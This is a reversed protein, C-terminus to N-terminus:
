RQRKDYMEALKHAFLLNVGVIGFGIITWLVIESPQFINNEIIKYLTYICYILAFFTTLIAPIYRKLMIWQVLHVFLHVFFGMFAALWWFYNDFLVSKQLEESFGGRLQQLAVRHAAVSESAILDAVAEAQALDLKGNLFARQTFEGATAMRAGNTILLELIKQQIFTSGHCSIEVTDDGTFSHPTRFISVLAEDVKEGCSDHITGFVLRHSATDTIKKASKETFIKAAIGIAENGSIRIVAIGGKGAPTAIAAITDHSSYM